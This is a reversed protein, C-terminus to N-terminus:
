MISIRMYRRIDSLSAFFVVLVVSVVFLGVGAWITLLHMVVAVILGVFVIFLLPGFLGFGADNQPTTAINNKM